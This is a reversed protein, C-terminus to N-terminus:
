QYFCDWPVDQVIFSSCAAHDIVQCKTWDIVLLRRVCLVDVYMICCCTCLMYFWGKIRTYVYVDHVYPLFAMDRVSIISSLQLTNETNQQLLIINQTQTDVVLARYYSAVSTRSKIM